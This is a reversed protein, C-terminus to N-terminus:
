VLSLPRALNRDCLLGTQRARCERAKAQTQELKNPITFRDADFLQSYKMLQHAACLLLSTSREAFISCPPTQACIGRVRQGDRQSVFPTDKTTPLATAVRGATPAGVQLPSLHIHTPTNLNGTKLRLLARNKAAECGRLSESGISWCCVSKVPTSERTKQKLKSLSKKTHHILRTSTAPLILRSEM